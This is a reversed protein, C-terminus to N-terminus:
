TWGAPAATTFPEVWRSAAAPEPSGGSCSTTNGNFRSTRVNLTATNAIGGGVAESFGLAENTATNNVIRSNNLMLTGGNAIGGGCVPAPGGFISFPCDPALGGSVTVANLTLNGSSAVAFIRFAQAGSARGPPVRTSGRIPTPRELRRASRATGNIIADVAGPTVNIVNPAAVANPVIMALSALVGVVVAVM